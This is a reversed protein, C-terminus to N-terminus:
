NIKKKLFIHFVLKYFFFFIKQYEEQVDRDKSRWVLVTRKNITNNINMMIM